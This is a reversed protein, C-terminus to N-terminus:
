LFSVNIRDMDNIRRSGNLSYKDLLTSQVYEKNADFEVKVIAM